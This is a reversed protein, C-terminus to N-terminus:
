NGDSVRLLMNGLDDAYDYESMNLEQMCASADGADVELHGPKAGKVMRETVIHILKENETFADARGDLQGANNRPMLTRNSQKYGTRKAEFYNNGAEAMKDAYEQSGPDFKQAEAKAADGRQLYEKVKHTVVAADKAPNSLAKHPNRFMGELDAHKELAFKGKGAVTSYYYKDMTAYAESLDSTKQHTIVEHAAMAAEEAQIKDNVEFDPGGNTNKQMMTLDTDVSGTGRKGSAVESLNNTTESHYYLKDQSIGTRRSVGEIAKQKIANDIRTWHEHKVIRLETSYMKDYYKLQQEAVPNARITKLAEDLALKAEPTKTNVFNNYAKQYAVVDKYGKYSAAVAPDSLDRGVVKLAGNDLEKIYVGHETAPNVEGLGSGRNNMRARRILDDAKAELLENEVKIKERAAKAKNVDVKPKFGELCKIRGFSHVAEYTGKYWTELNTMKPALKPIKTGYRAVFKDVRAVGGKAWNWAKGAGWEMAKGVLFQAIVERSGIWLCGTFTDGKGFFRTQEATEIGRKMKYPISIATLTGFAVETLGFSCIGWTLRVLFPVSNEMREARGGVEDITWMLWDRLSMGPDPEANAGVIEGRMFMNFIQFVTAVQVDDYGYEPEFGDLMTGIMKHLPFLNEMYYTGIYDRLHELRGTIREDEQDRAPGDEITGYGRWRQSLLTLERQCTFTKDFAKATITVVAQVRRPPDLYGKLLRIGVVLGGEEDIEPEEGTFLQPYMNDILYQEEPDVAKFTIDEPIPAISRVIGEEEDFYILRISTKTEAPGDEVVTKILIGDDDTQSVVHRKMYCNIYPTTFTLGEKVRAIQLSGQATGADKLRAEVELTYIESGGPERDKMNNVDGVPIINAYWLKAYPLGLDEGPVMNVKYMGEPVVRASVEHDLGMGLVVCYPKMVENYDSPIAMNPQDFCIEAGRLQFTMLNTFTGGPGTFCFSVQAEARGETHQGISIWASRYAGYLQSEPEVKLIGDPSSITIAQSLDPRDKEAGTVPDVEVIRAFVQKREGQFVTNGFDKYVRMRYKRNNEPVETEQPQSGGFTAAVAGGIAGIATGVGIGIKEGISRKSTKNKGKNGDVIDDDISVETEGEEESAETEVVVDRWGDMTCTFSIDSARMDLQTADDVGEAVPTCTILGDRIFPKKGEFGISFSVRYDATSETQTDGGGDVYGPGSYSVRGQATVRQTKDAGYVPLYGKDEKQEVPFLEIDTVYLETTYKGSQKYGYLEYDFGSVIKTKLSAKGNESIVIEIDDVEMEYTLGSVSPIDPLVPTGYYTGALKSLDDGDKNDDEEGAFATMIMGPLIMLLMLLNCLFYAKIKRNKYHKRKGM